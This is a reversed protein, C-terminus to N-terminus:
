QELEVVDFSAVAAGDLDGQAARASWIAFAAAAAFVGLAVWRVRGPERRTVDLEVSAMVGDAFGPRPALEETRAALRTLQELTEDPKTM